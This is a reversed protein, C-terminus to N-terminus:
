AQQLSIQGNRFSPPRQVPHPTVTTAVGVMTSGGARQVIWYSECSIGMFGLEAPKSTSDPQCIDMVIVQCLQLSHDMRSMM